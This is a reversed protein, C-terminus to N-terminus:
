VEQITIKGADQRTLIDLLGIDGKTNIEDKIKNISVINLLM